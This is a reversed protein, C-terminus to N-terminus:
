ELLLNFSVRDTKGNASVDFDVVWWGGMQFKMGDVLYDGQGLYTSVEPTTPMGHGHQPMDGHPTITANEVPKGDPTEVHLTWSHLRNIPIPEVAPRITARFVGNTSARTTSLDLDSPIAHMRWFMFGLSALAIVLVAGIGGVIWKLSRGRTATPTDHTVTATRM